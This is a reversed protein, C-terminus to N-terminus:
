PTPKAADMRREITEKALANVGRGQEWGQYTKLSVELLSAVEKQLRSGRWEILKKAFEKRAKKGM